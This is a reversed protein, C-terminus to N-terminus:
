SKKNFYKTLLNDILKSRNLNAEDIKKILEKSLSIGIIKTDKNM